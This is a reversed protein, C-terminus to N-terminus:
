TGWRRSRAPWRSSRIGSAAVHQLPGGALAVGVGPGIRHGGAGEARLHHHRGQRRRQLRRRPPDRRGALLVQAMPRVAPLRQQVALCLGACSRGRGGGEADRARSRRIRERRLRRLAPDGRVGAMHHKDAQRPQVERLRRDWTRGTRRWARGLAPAHRAERHASAEPGRPEHQRDLHQIGRDGGARHRDSLHRRQIVADRGAPVRRRRQGRARRPQDMQGLQLERHPRQGPDADREGLVRDRGKFDTAAVYIQHQVAAIRPAAFTVLGTESPISWRSATGPATMSKSYFIRSANNSGDDQRLAAHIRDNLVTAHFQGNKVAILSSVASLPAFTLPAAQTASTHRLTPTPSGVFLLHLGTGDWLLQPVSGPAVDVPPSWTNTSPTYVAVNVRTSGAPVWALALKGDFGSVLSAPGSASWALATWAGPWAPAEDGNVLLQNMYLRGDPARAVLFIKAVGVGEGAVASAIAESSFVLPQPSPSGVVKWGATLSRVNRTAPDTSTAPARFRRTNCAENADVQFLWISNNRHGYLGVTDTTSPGEVVGLMSVPSSSGRNALKYRVYPLNIRFDWGQLNPLFEPYSTFDDPIDRGADFNWNAFVTLAGIAAHGNDKNVGQGSIGPARAILLLSLTVLLLWRLPHPM